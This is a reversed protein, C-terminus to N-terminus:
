GDNSSYRLGLRVEAAQPGLSNEVLKQARLVRLPALKQGNRATEAGNQDERSGEQGM